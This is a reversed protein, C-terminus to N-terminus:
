RGAKAADIEVRHAAAFRQLATANDAVGQWEGRRALYWGIQSRSCALGGGPMVSWFGINLPVIQRGLCALAPNLWRLYGLM